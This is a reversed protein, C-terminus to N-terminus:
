VPKTRNSKLLNLAEDKTMAANPILPFEDIKPTRVNSYIDKYVKCLVEVKEISSIKTSNTVKECLDFIWTRMAAKHFEDPLHLMLEQPTTKLARALGVVTNSTVKQSKRHLLRWVAARSMGAAEGLSTHNYDSAEYLKTLKQFNILM